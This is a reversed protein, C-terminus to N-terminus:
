VGRMIVPLRNERHLLTLKQISVQDNDIYAYEMVGDSNEFQDLPPCLYDAIKMHSPRLLSAAIIAEERGHIGAYAVGRLSGLVYIDGTCRILGGPHVDGLLLLDGHYEIEQGARIIATMVKLEAHAKPVTPVDSEIAHIILNGQSRIIETLQKSQEESITRNGLKVTIHILPGTLLQQHTKEIKHKLENLIAEFDCQDDLLFLLGDKVGKIIIHQKVTM